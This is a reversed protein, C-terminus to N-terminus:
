VYCFDFITILLLVQLAQLSLVMYTCRGNGIYGM